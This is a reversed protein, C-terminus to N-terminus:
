STVFALSPRGLAYHSLFACICDLMVSTGHALWVLTAGSVASRACNQVAADCFRCPKWLFECAFHMMSGLGCCAGVTSLSLFNFHERSRLSLVIHKWVGVHLCSGKALCGSESLIQCLSIGAVDLLLMKWKMEGDTTEHIFCCLFIWRSNLQLLALSIQWSLDFFTVMSDGKAVHEWLHVLALQLFERAKSLKLHAPKLLAFTICICTTSTKLGQEQFMQLPGWIKSQTNNQTTVNCECYSNHKVTNGTKSTWRALSNFSGPKITSAQAM